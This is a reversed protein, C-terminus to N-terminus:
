CLYDDKTQWGALRLFRVLDARYGQEEAGVEDRVNDNYFCGIVGPLGYQIDLFDQGMEYLFNRYLISWSKKFM